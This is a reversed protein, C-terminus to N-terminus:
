KSPSNDPATYPRTRFALTFFKWSWAHAACDLSPCPGIRRCNPFFPALSNARSKLYGKEMAWAKAEARESFAAM